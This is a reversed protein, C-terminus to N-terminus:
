ITTVKLKTRIAASCQDLKISSLNKNGERINEQNKIDEEYKEKWIFVEIKYDDSGNKDLRSPTNISPLKGNRMREAIHM